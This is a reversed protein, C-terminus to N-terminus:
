RERDLGFPCGGSLECSSCLKSSHCGGFACGSRRALGSPALGGKGCAPSKRGNRRRLRMDSRHKTILREVNYRGRTGCPECIIEM